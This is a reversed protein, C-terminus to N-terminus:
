GIGAGSKRDIGKLIFFNPYAAYSFGYVSDYIEKADFVRSRFESLLSMPNECNEVSAFAVYFMDNKAIGFVTATITGNENTVFYSDFSVWEEDLNDTLKLDLQSVGKLDLDNKTISVNWTDKYLSYDPSSSSPFEPPTIEIFFTTIGNKTVYGIDDDMFLSPYIVSDSSDSGNSSDTNNEGNNNSTNNGGSGNSTGNNFANDSDNNSDNNVVDNSGSPLEELMAVWAMVGLVTGLILVLAIVGLIINKKSM